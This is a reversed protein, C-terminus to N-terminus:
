EPGPTYILNVGDKFVVIVAEPRDPHPRISLHGADATVNPGTVTAPGESDMETVDLATRLSDTEVRHGTATEVVVGGSLRAESAVSDILASEAEVRIHREGGTDLDAVVQEASIVSRSGNMPTAREARLSLARGDDTVGTYHPRTIGQGRAIQELEVESFPLGGDEDPARAVLFLASLLALAALPLLIKVWGIFRSYLQASREM